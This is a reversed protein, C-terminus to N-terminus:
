GAEEGGPAALGVLRWEGDERTRTHRCGTARYAAVVEEVEDALIGSLLLVGGSSLRESLAAAMAILTQSLINAAVLDFRGPVRGIEGAILTVRDPLGNKELNERAVRCADEDNDLAFVRPVGCRAAALALIGSGTGVDLFSNAPMLRDMEGLCLRTTPHLGTGFALSPDIRVPFAEGEDPRIWGPHIFFRGVRVPKFHRKWGDAWEETALPITRPQDCAFGPVCTGANRCFAELAKLQPAADTGPPFYARIEIRDAGLDSPPAPHSADVQEIGAPSAELLHASVADVAEPSVRVAVIVWSEASEGPM